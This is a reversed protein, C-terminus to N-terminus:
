YFREECRIMPDAVTFRAQGEEQTCAVTGYWSKLCEVQTAAVPKDCNYFRGVVIGSKDVDDTQKVYQCRGWADTNYWKQAIDYRNVGDCQPGADPTTYDWQPDRMDCISPRDNVGADSSAGTWYCLKTGDSWQQSTFIFDYGLVM